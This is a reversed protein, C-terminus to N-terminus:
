GNFTSLLEVSCLVSHGRLDENKLITKEPFNHNILKLVKKTMSPWTDLAVHGKIGFFGKFPNIM